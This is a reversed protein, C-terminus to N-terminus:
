PEPDVTFNLTKHFMLQCFYYLSKQKYPHCAFKINCKLIWCDTVITATVSANQGTTHYGGCNKLFKNKSEFARHCSSALAGSPSVLEHNWTQLRKFKMPLTLCNCVISSCELTQERKSHHKIM